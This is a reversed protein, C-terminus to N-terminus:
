KKPPIVQGTEGGTDDKQTVSIHDTSDDYNNDLPEGMGLLGLLMIVWTIM